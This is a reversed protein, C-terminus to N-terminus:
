SGVDLNLALYILEAAEEMIDDAELRIVNQCWASWPQVVKIFLVLFYENM